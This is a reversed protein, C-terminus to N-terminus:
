WNQPPPSSQGRSPTSAAASTSPISPQTVTAAPASTSAPQRQPPLTFPAAPAATGQTAMHRKRLQRSFMAYTAFCHKQFERVTAGEEDTIPEGLWMKNMLAFMEQEMEKTYSEPGTIVPEADPDYGDDDGDDLDGGVEDNFGDDEDQALDGLGAGRDTNVTPYRQL